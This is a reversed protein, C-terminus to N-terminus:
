DGARGARSAVAEVLRLPLSGPALVADHFTRVDGADHRLAALRDAMLFEAARIGPELCIRAVDDEIPAFIVGKGQLDRLKAVAYQRTWGHHHIGTDALARGVRFLAWQIYGLEAAPDGEFAGTDAMLREAYIAWGETFAAAHALRLRHPAAAAEIPMQLMHGPLLEHHVVSPLTWSPRQRIDSLDVFYGGEGSGDAPPVTRYGGRGAVEDAPSMRRAAVHDVAPPIHSFARPLWSRARALRRNMDAVARDRGADSDPYLYRPQEALLRFREGTSGSEMGISRFLTDARAVLNRAFTEARTHASAPRVAKGLARELMLAFYHAGGPVRSLGPATPAIRQQGELVAVQDVLADAVAGKAAAAAATVQRVTETLLPRPLVVGRRAALALRDTEAALESAAVPKGAAVKRWGGNRPSVPYPSGGPALWPWIAQMRADTALGDRVALLDFRRVPSLGAPDFRKLRALGAVPDGARAIDDLLALLEADKRLAARAVSPPLVALAAAGRM